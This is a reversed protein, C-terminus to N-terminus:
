ASRRPRLPPSGIAALDFWEPRLKRLSAVHPGECPRLQLGDKSRLSRFVGDLYSAAHRWQSVFGGIVYAGSAQRVFPPEGAAAPPMDLRRALSATRRLPRRRVARVHTRSEPLQRCLGSRASAFLLGLALLLATARGQKAIVAGM